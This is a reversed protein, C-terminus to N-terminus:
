CKSMSNGRTAAAAAVALESMRSIAYHDLEARVKGKAWILDPATTGLSAARFPLDALAQGIPLAHEWDIPTIDSGNVILNSPKLDGHILGKAHVSVIAQTLKELLPPWLDPTIDSLPVGEIFARRLALADGRKVINLVEPVCLGALHQMAHLENELLQRPMGSSASKEVASRGQWFVIQCPAKHAHESM